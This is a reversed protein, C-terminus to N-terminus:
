VCVGAFSKGLLKVFKYTRVISIFFVRDLSFLSLQNLSLMFMNSEIHLLSYIRKEGRIIISFAHFLEFLGVILELRVIVHSNGTSHSSIFTSIIGIDQGQHVKMHAKSAILSPFELFERSSVEERESSSLRFIM